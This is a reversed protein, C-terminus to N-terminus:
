GDGLAARARIMAAETQLVQNWKPTNEDDGITDVAAVLKELAERLTQVRLSLSDREAEATSLKGEAEAWARDLERIAEVLKAILQVMKVTQDRSIEIVLGPEGYRLGEAVLGEVDVAEVSPSPLIPSTRLSKEDDQGGGRAAQRGSNGARDNRTLPDQGGLKEIELLAADVCASWGKGHEDNEAVWGGLANIAAHAQDLADVSGSPTKGQLSVPKKWEPWSAVEEKAAQVVPGLDAFSKGEREGSSGAVMEMKSITPPEPKQPTPYEAEQWEKFAVRYDDILRRLCRRHVKAVRARRAKFQEEVTDPQTNMAQARLEAAKKVAREVDRSLWGPKLDVERM